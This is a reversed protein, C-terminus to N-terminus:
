FNSESKQAPEPRTELLPKRVGKLRNLAAHAAGREPAPDQSEAIAALTKEAEAGGLAGIAEIVKLRVYQVKEAQLAETLRELLATQGTRGIHQAAIARVGQDADKALAQALLAATKGEFVKESLIGLAERRVKASPEALIAPDLAALDGGSRAHLRALACLTAGRLSEDANAHLDRLAPLATEPHPSFGLAEACWRTRDADGDQRAIEALFAACPAEPRKGLLLAASRRVEPPQKADLLADQLLKRSGEAEAGEIRSAGLLIQGALAPDPSAEWAENLAALAQPGGICGLIMAARLKLESGQKDDRAVPEKLIRALDPVAAPGDQILAQEQEASAEWDGAAIAKRLRQLNGAPGPAVPVEKTAEPQNPQGGTLFVVALAGLAMACLGGLIGLVIWVLRNRSTPQTM